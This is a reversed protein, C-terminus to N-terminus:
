VYRYLFRRVAESPQNITTLVGWKHCNRKKPAEPKVVCTEESFGEHFVRESEPFTRTKEMKFVTGTSDSPKEEVPEVTGDRSPEFDFKESQPLNIWNPGDNGRDDDNYVFFILTVCFLTLALTLPQRATSFGM